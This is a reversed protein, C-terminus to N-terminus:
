FAGASYFIKKVFLPTIAPYERDATVGNNTIQLEVIGIDMDKLIYVLVPSLPFVDSMPPVFTGLLL